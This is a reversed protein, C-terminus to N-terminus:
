NDKIAELTEVKKDIEQNMVELKKGAHQKNQNLINEHVEQHNSDDCGVLLLAGLSLVLIKKM